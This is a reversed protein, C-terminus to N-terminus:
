PTEGEPSEEPLAHTSVVHPRLAQLEGPPLLPHARRTGGSPRPAPVVAAQDGTVHEVYGALAQEEAPEADPPDDRLVPAAAM